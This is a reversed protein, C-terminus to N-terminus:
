AAKQQCPNDRTKERDLGVLKQGASVRDGLDALIRSVAGEAQSSITVQDVAALTGVVDVPRHVMEERVAVTDIPKAPEERARAQAAQQRSCGALVAAAAVAATLVRRRRLRDKDM